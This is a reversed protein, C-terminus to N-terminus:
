GSFPKYDSYGKPLKFLSEDIELSKINKLLKAYGRSHTIQVPLGSLYYEGAHYVQDVLFCPTQMDKPTNQLTTVQQGSLVQQYEHMIKMSEAHVGKIMFVQTCVEQEAKVQYNFVRKNFVKPAKEMINEAVSTQFDFVPQKWQHNDIKLITQDEHNISFILKKKVDFLIFDAKPNGNDIRLYNKNILYRMSQVGIGEEVEDYFLALSKVNEACVSHTVLLTLPILFVRNIIKM